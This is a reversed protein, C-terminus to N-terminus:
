EFGKFHQLRYASYSEFLFDGAPLDEFIYSGDAGSRASDVFLDGSTMIEILMNPVPNDNEDVVGNRNMDEWAGGSISATCTGTEELAVEATSTCGNNDTATVSYTGANLGSRQDDITGDEWEVTYGPTGGSIDLSLSALQFLHCAM